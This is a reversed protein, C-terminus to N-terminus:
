LNSDTPGRNREAPPSARTCLGEVAIDYDLRDGLSRPKCTNADVVLGRARNRAALGPSRPAVSTIADAILRGDPRCFRVGRRGAREVCFGGEHVL